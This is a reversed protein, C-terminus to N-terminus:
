ILGIVRKETIIEDMREDKEHRPLKEVVQFDYCIGIRYAASKALYCDYYGKGYGLRHMCLGFSVGPIVIVDPEPSPTKPDIEKSSPELIGFKGPKLDTFSRFPVFSVRHDTVPVLVKKGLKIAHGIMRETDVENGKQIYFAVTKAEAFRPRSFLKDMISDSMSAVEDPSIADRQVLMKKRLAAKLHHVM